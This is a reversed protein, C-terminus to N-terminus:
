LTLNCAHSINKRHLTSFGFSMVASLKINIVEFCYALNNINM